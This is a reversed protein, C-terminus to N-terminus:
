IGFAKNDDSEWITHSRKVKTQLKVIKLNFNMENNRKEIKMSMFEAALIFLYPSLPGGQRVGTSPNILNTAYGNNLVASEIDSYFVKVWNRLSDNCNYLKLFHHICSWASVCELVCCM